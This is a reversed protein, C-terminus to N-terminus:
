LETQIASLLTRVFECLTSYTPPEGLITDVTWNVVDGSELSINQEFAENHKESFVEITYYVNRDDGTTEGLGKNTKPKENVKLREVRTLQYTFTESVKKTTAKKFDISKVELYRVLTDFAPGKKSKIKKDVNEFAITSVENPNVSIRKSFTTFPEVDHRIARRTALNIAIDSKLNLMTWDINVLPEWESGVKVLSANSRNVRMYVESFEDNPSNRADAKIEFYEIYDKKKDPSFFSDFRKNTSNDHTVDEDFRSKINYKSIISELDDFNWFKGKVEDTKSFMSKGLSGYLRVEGQHVRVYELGKTLVDSMRALNYSKIKKDLALRESKELSKSNPENIYHSLICVDNFYDMAADKFYPHNNPLRFGVKFHAHVNSFHVLPVRKHNLTERLYNKEIQGLKRYAKEIDKRKGKNFEIRRDDYSIEGDVNCSKCIDRWYDVHTFPRWQDKGFLGDLEAPVRIQSNFIYIGKLGVPIEEEKKEIMLPVTEKIPPPKGPASKEFKPEKKKYRPVAYSQKESKSKLLEFIYDRTKNLEDYDTGKIDFLKKERIYEVKVDHDDELKRCEEEILKIEEESYAWFTIISYSIEETNEM